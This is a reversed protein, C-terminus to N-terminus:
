RARRGARLRFRGPALADVLKGELPLPEGCAHSALLDAGLGAWLLGRSGYACAGYLGPGRADEIPGIMPLRDPVTARWAVRGGLTAPDLGASAGPIIRELRSLNEAHDGPRQEAEEDDFDFSAGTVAIGDVPPVVFGGRLVVTRLQSLREGPLHTLQGRVRRMRVAADPALRLADGANALVVTGARAIEGGNADRALWDDGARELVAVERGYRAVLREGCGALLARAMSPPRLWGAQAFWVGGAAVRMGALWSARSADVQEAYAAPYGLAALARQQADAERSDRALQLVGCASHEIGSALLRLFAARTLRAFVSDDPAILPHFTGAHNGSAEAAPAAHREVLEVQWGRAAFRECAAAGAIGAGIVMVRRASAQPAQAAAGRPVLSACLMERKAGFGTRKEVAFGAAGLAARVEGAVSWTAATAGPAALRALRKLLPASWMEPNRAPSFGDLYIADAALRLQPLADAADAFFLTLVVRGHELVMRHCGPVLLPWAERLAASQAAVQAHPAHLAALDAAAFPHKEVAVYHLTACRRADERWAQWTALFNLGLGFGTELVVFRERGQWRAPLGNGDLFVHRAQALGGGASHYVDGYAESYPTGDAAYAPRAPVLAFPM